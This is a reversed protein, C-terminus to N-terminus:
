NAPQEHYIKTAPSRLRIVTEGNSFQQSFDKTAELFAQRCGPKMNDHLEAMIVRVKPMWKASNEFVEKESGEIDIKLLDVTELNMSAMLTDVTMADVLGSREDDALPKEAIQFGHHGHRPDILSIQKAEKWLAARIPQIQPYPSANRQLLRFNSEEPELAIIIADPYKNAFYIASLGINAGADIITKPVIEFPIDYHKEILVQALVSVDTTGIRVCLPHSIGVVSTKFLPRKGSAKSTIFQMM